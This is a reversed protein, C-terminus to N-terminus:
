SETRTDAPRTVGSALTREESVHGGPRRANRNPSDWLIGRNGWPLWRSSLSSSMVPLEVIESDPPDVELEPYRAAYFLLGVYAAVIFAGVIWVSKGKLELDM